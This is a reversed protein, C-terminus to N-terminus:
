RSPWQPPHRPKLTVQDDDQLRGDLTDVQGWIQYRITFHAPDAPDPQGAYVRVLPLTRVLESLSDLGYFRQAFSPPKTLTAPTAVSADYDFGAIFEPQFTTPDPGYRVCVLRRHGAPSIREHLFIIPGPGGAGGWGGAFLTAAPLTALTGLNRWCRPQFAAAQVTTAPMNPDPARKLVYPSYEPGKLLVAAAAPDEEYAVKDASASFEM